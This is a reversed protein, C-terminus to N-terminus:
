MKILSSMLILSISKNKQRALFLLAVVHGLSDTALVMINQQRGIKKYLFKFKPPKLSQNFGICSHFLGTIFEIKEELRTSKRQCREPILSSICSLMLM